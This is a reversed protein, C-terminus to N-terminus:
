LSWITWGSWGERSRAWCAIKSVLCTHFSWNFTRLTRTPFVTCTYSFSCWSSQTIRAKIADSSSPCRYSFYLLLLGFHETFFTNRSIKYFECSFVQALTEKKTFNCAEAQLKILFSARTCTNELSNQSIELFCRRVSCRRQKSRFNNIRIKFYIGWLCIWLTTLCRPHPTKRKAFCEM